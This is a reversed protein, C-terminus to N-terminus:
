ITVVRATGLREAARRLSTDFTAFKTEGSLSALHMADAFDMGKQYWELALMVAPRDEIEFNSVALVGRISSVITERNLRYSSALVWGLELLVTKLILVRDQAHIFARAREVQSAEDEVIIRVLLNTDVAIV